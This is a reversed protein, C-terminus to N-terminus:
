PDPMAALQPTTWLHPESRSNGHSHHLGAAVARGQGRAWSSGYAVVTAIFVFCFCFCFLFGCFVFLFHESNEPSMISYM